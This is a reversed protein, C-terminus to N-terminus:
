KNILTTIKGNSFLSLEHMARSCGIYLYNRDIDSHYKSENAELVIVKEFELGKALFLCGIVCGRKIDKGNYNLLNVRCKNKLREYIRKSDKFSKTIIGLSKGKYNNIVEILKDIMEKNDSFEVVEVEKGERNVTNVGQNKIIKNLFDFIQKSSRYSNNLTIVDGDFKDKYSEQIFLRQNRDGLYTKSCKFLKNIVEREFINLDQCEDILLHNYKDFITSEKFFLRIYVLQYIHEYKLLGKRILDKDYNYKDLFENYLEFYDIEPLLKDMFLEVSKIVEGSVRNQTSIRDLLFDKILKKRKYYNRRGFKNFYLEKFLASSFTMGKIKLGIKDNFITTLKENLFELLHNFRNDYEYILNNDIIREFYEEKGELKIKLRHLDNRLMIQGIQNLTLNVVNDEGLEPLVNDVYKIFVNNPTIFCVNSSNYKLTDKYMLYAIRHLAISTKGSGAVGLVLVNKNDLYRIVKNQEKQITAVINKMVVDNSNKLTELLLEDSINSLMDAYYVLEGKKFKYQRKLTVEGEVLGRPSEYSSKGMISDYYLNAVPSRWDYVVINENDMLTEIGFYYPIEGWENKFDLRGFYPKDLMMLYRSLQRNAINSIGKAYNIEDIMALEGAYETMSGRNSYYSDLADIIVQEKESLLQKNDSIKSKLLDLVDKAYEREKNM